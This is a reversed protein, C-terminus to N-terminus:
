SVAKQIQPFTGSFRKEHRSRRDNRESCLSTTIWHHDCSSKQKNQQRQKYFYIINQKRYIYYLGYKVDVHGCIRRLTIMISCDLATSGIKYNQLITEDCLDPKNLADFTEM